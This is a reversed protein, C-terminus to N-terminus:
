GDAHTISRFISFQIECMLNSIFSYIIEGDHIVKDSLSSGMKEAIYAFSSPTTRRVLSLLGTM